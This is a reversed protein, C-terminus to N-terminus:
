FIRRLDVKKNEKIERFTNLNRQRIRLPDHGFVRMILAIPLLVIFFVLGLIINSNIWGLCEGILMWGRYPYTLLKPRFIGLPLFPLGIWLTWIRLGHGFIAPIIVGIITPLGIGFLFGFERLQKISVSKKVM